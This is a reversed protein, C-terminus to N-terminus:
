TAAPLETEIAERLATGAEATRPGNLSFEMGEVANVPQVERLTSALFAEQAGALEDLTVSEEAADTAALIRARTISPLIHETLPPTLLRGDRVWFFTSTPGELVRGHPSVLLAEDFGREKALRTMLMNPGYSLSKINDMVRTPAYTVAALRVPASHDPIPEIFVLRHGGRTWVARVLADVAGAHAAIAEIDARLADIEIPLRLNRASLEFRALHDDLAFIRGAYLRLVEFVGDGRLFGEDTAPITAQAAPGISGDVSVIAEM